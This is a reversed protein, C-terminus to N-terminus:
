SPPPPLLSLTLLYIYCGTHNPLSSVPLPSPPPTLM